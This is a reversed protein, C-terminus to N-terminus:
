RARRHRGHEVSRPKITAPTRQWGNRQQLRGLEEAFWVPTPPRAGPERALGWLLLDSVDPPVKHAPLPAVTACLVRASIAAPSDEEYSRFPARGALLQYLTAALGYVDTAPTAADGLLLEPATHVTPDHLLPAPHHAPAAASQFNAVVPEHFETLMVNRPRVASHVVGSRHASELAGALKVAFDIAHPLPAPVSQFLGAFSGLCRELVLARRGDHTEVWQHMTIVHPHSRLAALITAERHVAERLHEPADTDVVKLVVPRGSSREIAGYRAVGDARYVLRAHDYGVCLPPEHVLLRM